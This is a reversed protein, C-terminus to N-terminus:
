RHRDDAVALFQETQPPVPLSRIQRLYGVLPVVGVVALGTFLWVGGLSAVPSTPDASHAFWQDTAVGIAELLWTVLGAGAVLQGWPRRQWLGVGAVAMLPLWIALDQVYVPNTALGTGALLTSTDGSLVAPLIARLWTLTNLVVVVLIYGGISRAPLDPSLRRTLGAIDVRHLTVALAGISLSLMAVYLLFLRNFPTAYVLLQGNYLLYGLAGLWTIVARTSGRAALVMSVLLLPVAVTAVILATGRASGNMAAPGTLIDPVLLTLLAGLTAVGALAGSLWYPSGARPVVAPAPGAAPTRGGPRSAVTTV